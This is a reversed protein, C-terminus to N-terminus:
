AAAGQVLEPNAVPKTLHNTYNSLTKISLCLIIELVQQHAFGAAFFEELDTDDVWGRKQNIKSALNVLARDQDNEIESKNIIADLTQPNVNNMKGIATHATQCFDCENEVSIALQLVQAQAASLSSEAILDALQLYAKLSAPAEAMYTFLDPVFGYKKQVEALVVAAENNQSDINHKPFITM